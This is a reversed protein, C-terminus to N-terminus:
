KSAALIREAAVIEGKTDFSLRVCRASHYVEM